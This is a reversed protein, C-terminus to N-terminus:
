FYYLGKFGHYVFQNDIQKCKAKGYYILTKMAFKEYRFKRLSSKAICFLNKSKVAM